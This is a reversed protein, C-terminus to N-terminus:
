AAQEAFLPGDIPEVVVECRPHERDLRWYTHQEKIQRDNMIVMKHMCEYVLSAVLDKLQSGYYIIVTVTVDCRWPAKLIPICRACDRKFRQAGKSSVLGVAAKGKRRTLIPSNSKSSAEGHITFRVQDSM